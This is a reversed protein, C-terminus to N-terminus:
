NKKLVILLESCNSKEDETLTVLPKRVYEDVIGKYALAAKVPTPNPAM